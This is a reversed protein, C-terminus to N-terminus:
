VVPWSDLRGIILSLTVVVILLINCILNIYGSIYAQPLNSGELPDDTPLFNTNTNTNKNGSQPNNGELDMCWLTALELTQEVESTKSVGKVAFVLMDGFLLCQVSFLITLFSSNIMIYGYTYIYIHTHIYIYIYVCVCVCIPIYVYIIYLLNNLDLGNLFM